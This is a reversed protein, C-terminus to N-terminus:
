IKQSLQQKLDEFNKVPVLDRIDIEYLDAFTVFTSQDSRTRTSGKPYYRRKLIFEPKSIWGCVTLENKIKHYSCFIYIDTKFHDQLKLFNNTYSRKVDTTRGMTKVDIAKNKYIIDIGKDCGTAGNVYGLGFLTSIVSQGIVGTLQQEKTGNATHRQGFNYSEILAECHKILDNEVPVTFM